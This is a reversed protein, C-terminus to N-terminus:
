AAASQAPLEVGFRALLEMAQPWEGHGSAPNLHGVAGADIWESGWAGAFSKARALSCLPDNSSGVLVSRFPLSVRPIPMWGNQALAEKAPYGAPLGAELDPPAVLLAGCVDSWLGLAWHAVMMVGASHAVLVVPRPMAAVTRDIAKVWAALSLNDKGLRPVCASGPLRAQLLSQWHGPVEDRLGPVFVVAPPNM